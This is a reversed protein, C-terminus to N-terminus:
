KMMTITVSITLIRGSLPDAAQTTQVSQGDRMPLTLDTKFQRIVPEKFEGSHPGSSDAVPKEAAVMVDGEIWSRELGLMVDFRGDGGALARADINTGIDLYQMGADKGVYVPVRSGMRVKTWPANHPDEGVVVYFTYPLNALKKEGEQEAFTVQVKLAGRPASAEKQKEQGKMQPALLILSGLVLSVLKVKIM